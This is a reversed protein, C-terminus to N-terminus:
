KLNFDERLIWRLLKALDTGKYEREVKRIKEYIPEILNPDFDLAKMTREVYKPDNKYSAAMRGHIYLWKGRIGEVAEKQQSSQERTYIKFDYCMAAGRGKINVKMWLDCSGDEYAKKLESCAKNVVHLNFDKNATYKDELCFMERLQQQTKHFGPYGDKEIHNKYQCCMEYFRQSYVSKLAMAVTISYSSYQRALEVLHPMIKSSVEVEYEQKAESWEVWNIFGTNVWSGDQHHMEVDRKRLNVLADHAEKKHKQGGILGLVEPTLTVHLSQFKDASAEESSGDVYDHRVKEIIKYICNKEIKTFDYRSETLANSQSLTIDKSKM